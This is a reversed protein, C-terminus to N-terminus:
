KNDRIKNGYCFWKKGHTTLNPLCKKLPFLVLKQYNVTFVLGKKPLGAGIRHIFTFYCLSLM